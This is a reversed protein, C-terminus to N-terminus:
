GDPDGWRTATVRLRAKRTEAPWYAIEVDGRSLEGSGVFTVTATEYRPVEVTYNGALGTPDHLVIAGNATITRLTTSGSPSLTLSINETRRPLTVSRTGEFRPEVSEESETEVLVIREITAGETAGDASIVERGGLGVSIADESQLGAWTRLDDATRNSLAAPRVVNARATVPSDAAVLRDAISAATQREIPASDAAVLQGEAVSLSVILTVTLVVLVVGLVPLSTQARM